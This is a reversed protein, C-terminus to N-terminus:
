RYYTYLLDLFRLALLLFGLSVQVVEAHANGSVRCLNRPPILSQEYRHIGKLPFFISISRHGGM